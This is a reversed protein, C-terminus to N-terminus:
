QKKTPVNFHKELYEFILKRMEVADENNSFGSDSYHNKEFLKNIGEWTHDFEETQIFADNNAIEDIKDTTNPPLVNILDVYDARVIRNDNITISESVIPESDFVRTEIEKAFEDLAPLEIVEEAVVEIEQASEVSVSEIYNMADELVVSYADANLSLVDDLLFCFQNFRYDGNPDEVFGLSILHQKRNSVVLKWQEM